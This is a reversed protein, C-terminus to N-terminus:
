KHTSRCLDLGHSCNFDMRTAKEHSTLLPHELLQRQLAAGQAWWLAGFGAELLCTLSPTGASVVINGSLCCLIGEPGEQGELLPTSLGGFGCQSKAKVCGWSGTPQQLFLPSPWPM